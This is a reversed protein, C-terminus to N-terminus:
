LTLTQSGYRFSDRIRSRFAIAAVLGFTVIPAAVFANLPMLWTLAAGVITIGAIGALGFEGFATERSIEAGLFPKLARCFFAGLGTMAVVLVLTCAAILLM